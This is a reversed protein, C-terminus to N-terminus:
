FFFIETPTLLNDHIYFFHTDHEGLVKYIIMLYEQTSYIHTIKNEINYNQYYLM